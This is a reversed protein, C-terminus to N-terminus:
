PNQYPNSSPTLNCVFHAEHFKLTLCFIMINSSYAGQWIHFTHLFRTMDNMVFMNYCNKMKFTTRYDVLNKM